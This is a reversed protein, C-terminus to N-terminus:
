NEKYGVGILELERLLPVYRRFLFKFSVPIRNWFWPTPNVSVKVKPFVRKLLNTFSKESWSYLHDEADGMGLRSELQPVAVIVRKSSVRAWERLVDLPRDLHELCHSSIVSGFSGDRFPLHFASARVFNPIYEPRLTAPFGQHSPISDYKVVPNLDVNVDGRPKLGCGVDLTRHTITDEHYM